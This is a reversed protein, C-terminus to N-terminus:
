VLRRNYHIIPGAVCSWGHFMRCYHQAGKVISPERHHIAMAVANTGCNSEALSAGPRVGLDACRCIVEPASYIELIRLHRDTLLLLTSRNHLLPHVDVFVERVHGVFEHREHLLRLDSSCM